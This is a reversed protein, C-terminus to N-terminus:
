VMRGINYALTELIRQNIKSFYPSRFNQSVRFGMVEAVGIAIDSYASFDCYIQFAFFVTAIAIEFGKYSSPNNYVKNVLIALRDAVVIKQILGWIILLLGNKVQIYDFSHKEDFQYLLNKSKEIPGALLQPFFSVFLAYKGLNKEAKIDKRYVDITYSLAKFTYFSIGIPLLYDFSAINIPRHFYTLVRALSASFFNYYKFCFLISLNSSFSLFVWLKKLQLSLKEDRMRNARDILLGSIYTIITSTALLVAHSPNWSMYFFYSTILLWARRMKHNLAFYVFTVITFFILFQISNFLM